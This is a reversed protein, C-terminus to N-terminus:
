RAPASSVPAPAALVARTLAQSLDGSADPKFGPAQCFGHASGGLWQEYDSTQLTAFATWPGAKGVRFEGCLVTRAPGDPATFQGLRVRRFQDPPSKMHQTFDTAAHGILATRADAAAPQSQAGAAALGLTWALMLPPIWATLKM